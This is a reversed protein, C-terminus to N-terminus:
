LLYVNCPIIGYGYLFFIIVIVLSITLPLLVVWCFLMLQDYRIRPFSARAWIFVFIIICTKLGLAFGYLIGEILPYSFYDDLAKIVNSLYHKSTDLPWYEINVIYFFFEDLPKVNGITILEYIGSFVDIYGYILLSLVFIILDLVFFTGSIFLDLLELLHLNVSSLPYLLYGGLFLISMLTCILVISAYEALFFFVFIVAAHETM